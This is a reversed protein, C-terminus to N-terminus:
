PLNNLFLLNMLYPTGRGIPLGFFRVDARRVPVRRLWKTRLNARATLALDGTLANVVRRSLPLFSLLLILLLATYAQRDPLTYQFQLRFKVIHSLITVETANNGELSEIFYFKTESRAIFVKVGIGYQRAINRSVFICYVILCKDLAYNMAYHLM